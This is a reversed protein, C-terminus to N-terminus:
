QLSPFTGGDIITNDKRLLQPYQELWLRLARENYNKGYAIEPPYNKPINGSYGNVTLYGVSQVALMIDLSKPIWDSIEYNRDPIFVFVSHKHKDSKLIQEYAYTRHKLEEYPIGNWRVCQDVVLAFFISGSLILSFGSSKKNVSKTLADVACALIVSVPFMLVIIIRSVARIASAGPLGYLLHYFSINNIKITCVVSIVLCWFFGMPFKNKEASLIGHWRRTILFLIALVPIVGIFLSHEWVMPIKSIEAFKFVNAWLLSEKSAQGYSFVCPIMTDIEGKGRFGLERAVQLYPSILPLMLLAGLLTTTFIIIIKSTKGNDMWDRWSLHMQKYQMVINPMWEKNVAIIYASFTIVLFYGIYIGAYFQLIVSLSFLIYSKVSRSRIFDVGYVFAIPVFFRPILQSHGVGQSVMPLGFAFFYAGILSAAKGFKFRSLAWYCSILDALYCVYYWFSYAHERTMGLVRGFTYIPLTGLHADSYATTLQAPYFIPANWFSSDLGKLYRYGHELIFMNFRSDGLEGPWNLFHKSSVCFWITYVMLISLCTIVKSDICLFSSKSIKMLLFNSYNKKYYKRLNKLM